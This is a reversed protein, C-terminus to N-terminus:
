GHEGGGGGRVERMEGRREMCRKEGSREEESGSGEGSRQDGGWRERM